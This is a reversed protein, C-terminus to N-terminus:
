LFAIEIPSLILAVVMAIQVILIVPMGITFLRHRTKHRFSYMGIISGLSGGIIAVTFLTSEPIRWARKIARKKDIWMLLLGLLNIGLIYGAILKIVDM